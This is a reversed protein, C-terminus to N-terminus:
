VVTLVGRFMNMSCHYKYQGPSPPTFTASVTEGNKSVLNVGVNDVIIQRGCGSAPDASFDLRVPSGAKVTIQTKDYGYPTGRLTIVQEAGAQALQGSSGSGKVVLKGTMDIHGSGCYTNCNFSFTGEKDATFEVTKEEGEGAKLDVGFESIGIGHAGDANKLTLRVRDGKNVEITSPEFKFKSATIVFEKVSADGVQMNAGSGGTGDAQSSARSGSDALMFGVFGMVLLGVIIFLHKENVM